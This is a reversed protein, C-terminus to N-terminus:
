DGHDSSVVDVGGDVVAATRCNSTHKQVLIFYIFLMFYHKDKSSWRKAKKVSLDLENFLFPSASFYFTSDQYHSQSNLEKM